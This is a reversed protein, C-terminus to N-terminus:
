NMFGLVNDAIPDSEAMAYVERNKIATHTFFTYILKQCEKSELLKSLM